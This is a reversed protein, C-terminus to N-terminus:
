ETPEWVATFYEDEGSPLAFAEGVLYVEGTKENKWGKRTKYMKNIDLKFNKSTM